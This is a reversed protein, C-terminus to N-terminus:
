FYIEYGFQIALEQAKKITDDVKKKEAEALIEKIKHIFEM